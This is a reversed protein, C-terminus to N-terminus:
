NVNNILEILTILKMNRLISLHYLSLLLVTVTSTYVTFLLLFLSCYSHIRHIFSYRANRGLSVKGTVKLLMRLNIVILDALFDLGTWPIDISPRLWCRRIVLVHFSM